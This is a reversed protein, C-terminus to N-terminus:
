RYKFSLKYDQGSHQLIVETKEIHLLRYGQVSDGEELIKNNIVAIREEPNKAWSIAQIKLIGEELSIIEPIDPTDGMGGATATPEKQPQLLKSSVPPIRKTQFPKGKNEPAKTEPVPASKAASLTPFPENLSPLPPANVIGTHNGSGAPDPVITQNGMGGPVQDPSKVVRKQSPPNSQFRNNGFFLFYAAAALGVSLCLVIGWKIATMSLWGQQRHMRLGLTARVNLRSSDLRRNGKEHNDQEARKLADLITSM